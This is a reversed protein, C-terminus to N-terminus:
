GRVAGRGGHGREPFVAHAPPCRGRAAPAGRVAPGAGRVSGASSRPVPTGLAGAHPPFGEAGAHPVTGCMGRHSLRGWLGQTLSPGM